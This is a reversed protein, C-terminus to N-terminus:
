RSNMRRATKSRRSPASKAMSTPPPETFAVSTVEVRAAKAEAASPLTESPRRKRTASAKKSPWRKRTTFACPVKEAKESEDVWLFGDEHASSDANSEQPPRVATSPIPSSLKVLTPSLDNAADGDATKKQQGNRWGGGEGRSDGRERSQHNEVAGDPLRDDTEYYYVFQKATGLGSTGSGRVQGVVTASSSSNAYTFSSHERTGVDPSPSRRTFVYVPLVAPRIRVAPVCTPLGAAVAPSSLRKQPWQPVERGVPWAAGNTTSNAYMHIPEADLCLTRCVDPAPRAVDTGVKPVNGFSSPLLAHAEEESASTKKTSHGQRLEELVAQVVSAARPRNANPGLSTACGHAVRDDFITPASIRFREAVDDSGRQPSSGSLKPPVGGPDAGRRQKVTVASALGTTTTKDELKMLSPNFENRAAPRSHQQEPTAQHGYHHRALRWLWTRDLVLRAALPSHVEDAVEEMDETEKLWQRLATIVSPTKLLDESLRCQQQQQLHALPSPSRSGRRQSCPPSPSSSSQDLTSAPIDYASEAKACVPAASRVGSNAISPARVLHNSSVMWSFTVGISESPPSSTHRGNVQRQAFLPTTHRLWWRMYEQVVHSVEYFRRTAVTRHSVRVQRATFALSSSPRSVSGAASADVCRWLSEKALQQVQEVTTAACEVAESDISSCRCHGEASDEGDMVGPEDLVGSYTDFACELFSLVDGERLVVSRGQPVRDLGVFIPNESHNILLYYPDKFNTPPPRYAVGESVVNGGTTVEVIVVDDDDGVEGVTTAHTKSRQLPPYAKYLQRHVAPAQVYVVRAHLRGACEHRLRYVAPLASHRGLAVHAVKTCWYDGKWPSMTRLSAAPASSEYQTYFPTLLAPTPLRPLRVDENCLCSNVVALQFAAPEGTYSSVPSGHSAVAVPSAAKRSAKKRPM